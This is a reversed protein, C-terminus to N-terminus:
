AQVCGGGLKGDDLRDEPESLAVSGAVDIGCVLVSHDLREVLSTKRHVTM